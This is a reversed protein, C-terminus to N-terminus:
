RQIYEERRFIQLLQAMVIFEGRAGVAGRRRLLKTGPEIIQIGRGIQTIHLLKGAPKM